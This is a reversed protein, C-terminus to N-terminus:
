ANMKAKGKVKRGNDPLPMSLQYVAQKFQEGSGGRTLGYYAGLIKGFSPIILKDFTKYVMPNPLRNELFTPKWIKINYEWCKIFFDWRAKSLSDVEAGQKNMLV